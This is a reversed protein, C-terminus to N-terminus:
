HIEKHVEHYKTNKTSWFINQGNFLVWFMSNLMVNAM